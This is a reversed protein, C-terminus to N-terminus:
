STSASLWEPLTTPPAVPRAPHPILTHSAITEHFTRVDLLKVIGSILLVVGVSLLAVRCVQLMIRTTVPRMNM